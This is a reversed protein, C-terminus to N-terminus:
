IEDEGGSEEDEESEEDEGGGTRHVNLVGPDNDSTLATFTVADPLTVESLHISAGLELELVDIEIYEPLDKPLCSIEAEILLHSISGGQQRVGVCEEENLFHFPVHVRIETDESVRQFDMHMITPKYPHRQLDRLVARESRDGIKLTLIHSYVADNELQKMVASHLLTLNMAEKGAGYLVAPVNGSHRLRRSAGKGMDNRLEANLQFDVTM